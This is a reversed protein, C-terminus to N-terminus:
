WAGPQLHRGLPAKAFLLHGITGCRRLRCCRDGHAWTCAQVAATIRPRPAQVCPAAPPHVHAQEQRFRVATSVTSHYWLIWPWRQLRGQQPGQGTSSVLQTSHTARPPPSRGQAQTLSPPKPLTLRVSVQTCTWLRTLPVLDGRQLSCALQLRPHSHAATCGRPRTLSPLARSGWAASSRSGWAWAESAAGAEPSSSQGRDRPSSGWLLPTPAGSALSTGAQPCSSEQLLHRQVGGGRGGCVSPGRRVQAPPLCCLPARTQSPLKAGHLLFGRGKPGPFVGGWGGRDLARGCRCIPRPLGARGHGRGKPYGRPQLWWDGLGLARRGARCRGGAVLPAAAM